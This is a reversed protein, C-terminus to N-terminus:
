IFIEKPWQAMPTCGEPSDTIHKGWCESPPKQWLLLWWTIVQPSDELIGTVGFVSRQSKGAKIATGPRASFGPPVTRTQSSM